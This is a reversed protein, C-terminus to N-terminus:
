MSRSLWPRRGNGLGRPLCRRAAAGTRGGAGPPAVPLRRVRRGNRRSRRRRQGPTGPMPLTAAASEFPPHPWGIHERTAAVEEDGLAAGHTAATGQKNPSGWGIVTRCCILSPMRDRRARGRDGAPHGRSRPWGRRPRRALRLGRFAGPTDDTFWGSVEGDISIGNDDYLCILKGLGLTGALSCAEHSIGEMLCGDGLFVYTHHDILPFDPRNFREALITEGLAMGVANALGQGLPGTTTEVGISLDVEPHGATKYGMQRFNRLQELPLDYGSCTFCRFLAADVRPREVARVPRPQALTSRGSQPPLFDNWLVEAIDAMGM